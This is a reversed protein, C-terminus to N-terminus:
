WMTEKTEKLKVTKLLKERAFIQVEAKVPWCIREPEEYEWNTYPQIIVGVEGQFSVGDEM